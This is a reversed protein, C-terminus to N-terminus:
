IRRAIPEGLEAADKQALVFPTPALPEHLVRKGHPPESGDNKDDDPRCDDTKARLAPVDDYRCKRAIVPDVEIVDKPADKDGEARRHEPLGGSCDATLPAARRTLVFPAAPDTVVPSPLRAFRELLRPLVHARPHHQVLAAVKM